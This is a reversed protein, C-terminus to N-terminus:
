KFFKHNINQISDCFYALYPNYGKLLSLFGFLSSRGNHRRDMYSEMYSVYVGNTYRLTINEIYKKYKVNKVKNEIIIITIIIKVNIVYSLGHL